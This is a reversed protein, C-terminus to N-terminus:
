VVIASIIVLCEKVYVILLIGIQQEVRMMLIGYLTSILFLKIM